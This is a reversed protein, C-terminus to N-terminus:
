LTNLFELLFLFHPECFLLLFQPNRGGLALLLRANFDFFSLILQANCVFNRNYRSEGQNMISAHFLYLPSLGPCSCNGEHVQILAFFITVCSRDIFHEAFVGPKPLVEKALVLVAPETM